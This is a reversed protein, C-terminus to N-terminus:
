IDSGKSVWKACWDEDRRALQIITRKLSQDKSFTRAALTSMKHIVKGQRGHVFLAGYRPYSLALHDQEPIAEEDKSREFPSFVGNVANLSLDLGANPIVTSFDSQLVAIMTEKAGVDYHWGQDLTQGSPPTYSSIQCWITHQGQLKLEKAFRSISLLILEELESPLGINQPCISQTNELKHSNSFYLRINTAVYYIKRNGGVDTAKVKPSSFFDEFYKGTHIPFLDTIVRYDRGYEPLNARRARNTHAVVSQGLQAQIASPPPLSSPTHQGSRLCQGFFAIAGLAVLMPFAVVPSLYRMRIPTCCPQDCRGLGLTSLPIQSVLQSVFTDGNSMRMNIVPNLFRSLIDLPSCSNIMM